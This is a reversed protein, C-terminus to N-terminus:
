IECLVRWLRFSEESRTILEDCLGRASLVRCECCVFNWAGLPIKKFAEKNTRNDYMLHTLASM